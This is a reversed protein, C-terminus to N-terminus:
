KEVLLKLITRKGDVTVVLYYLGNALPTGTKDVLPVSLNNVGAPLVATTEDLVKRFAVTFIRLNVSTSDALTLVLNM